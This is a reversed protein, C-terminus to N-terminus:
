GTRVELHRPAVLIGMKRLITPLRITGDLFYEFFMDNMEKMKKNLDEKKDKEKFPAMMKKVRKKFTRKCMTCEGKKMLKRTLECNPAPMDLSSTVDTEMNSEIDTDSADEEDDDDDDEEKENLITSSGLLSGQASIEKLKDRESQVQVMVSARMSGPNEKEKERLAEHVENINRLLLAGRERLSDIDDNLGDREMMVQRRSSIMYVSSIIALFTTELLEWMTEKSFHFAFMMAYTIIEGTASLWVSHTFMHILIMDFFVIIAHILYAPPSSDLYLRVALVIASSCCGMLTAMKASDTSLGNFMSWPWSKTDFEAKQLAELEPDFRARLPIRMSHGRAVSTPLRDTADGTESSKSSPSSTSRGTM